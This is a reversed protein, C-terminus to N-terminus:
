DEEPHKYFKTAEEFRNTRTIKEVFDSFRKHRSTVVGFAAFLRVFRGSRALLHLIEQALEGLRIVSDLLRFIWFFPLVAIVELWERRLFGEWSKARKFKFSLDGVFISLVALDAYLFYIEYEYKFDTFFVDAIVIFVLVLLAPLIMKDFFRELASWNM